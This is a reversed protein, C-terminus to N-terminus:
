QTKKNLVASYIVAAAAKGGLQTLQQHAQELIKKDPFEDFFRVTQSEAGSKLNRAIQTYIRANFNFIETLCYGAAAKEATFVIEDPATLQWGSKVVPAPATKERLFNAIGDRGNSKALDEPRNGRNDRINADAGCAVLAKVSPFKSYDAACHLATQGRDDVTNINAGKKVLLPIVTEKDSYAAAYHLATWSYNNPNHININSGSQLLIDVIDERGGSCAHMLPTKRSKDAANVDAGKAILLQVTQSLSSCIAYVLPTNGESDKGNIDAGEALLREIESLKGASCAKRLKNNLKEQKSAFLGM